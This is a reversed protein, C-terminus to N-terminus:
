KIKNNILLTIEISIWKDAREEVGSTFLEKYADVKGQRIFNSSRTERKAREEKLDYDFYIGNVSTNKKFNDIHMHEALKDIESDTYTKGLFKCVKLITSRMDKVIDEYFVFLVNEQHRIDWAEKAHEFFTGWILGREFIDWYQEFPPQDVFMQGFHYASVATDKPNRVVYIVRAEKALEPPLLSLALHSKYVRTEPYETKEWELTLFSKITELRKPDNANEKLLKEKKEENFRFTAYEFYPVREILPKEFGKEFDMDNCIQWVMETMLTTGSRGLTNIWVDNKRIPFNYIEDKYKEYNPLCIYNKPGIQYFEGPKGTTFLEKYTDVKGQRIFNNGRLTRKAREEKSDYDFYNKNVSANKRFNDIHMHETLKDIESDTYTKGLFKCVKLITSRMDKVIDEYFMFLVNEQHRIDWAEKAQEFFTGWILGREFTDWYQEFPPQDFYMQGFHYASAAMDKPNRVVYILRAEKALEPPLLSLPLHSKYVRTEPYESREWELTLMHKVTELRKPDNENEKLLKKKGFTAYEFFPVREILPKEFGKEFDMNNCIQWVMETMLTTGSRGLTNIWVDNKRIPFNYIEDKYKIYNPWRVYNKPGVQYLEWPKGTAM